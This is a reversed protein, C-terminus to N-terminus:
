CSAVASYVGIVASVLIVFEILSDAFKDEPRSYSFNGVDSWSSSM